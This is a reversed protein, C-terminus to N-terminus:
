KSYSAETTNKVPSNALRAAPEAPLTFCFTTGRGMESVAWIRGKHAEVIHRAIALGLGTGHHGKTNNNTGQYFHKFVNQLEERPIGPGSDSVRIEVEHRALDGKFFVDIRVESGEPSFKLANSLLNSLVQEIRREDATLMPTRIDINTRIRINRKRAILDVAEVCNEILDGVDCMTFDYDMMEAEMKSLDLISTISQFLRESHNGVVNLIERQNATLPGPIGELLLATGERIATLPTRLEHSVHATFDAKLRDLHELEEAMLKFAEALDEIERPGKIRIARNFEGRGVHRMEQALRSLPRSIGRAHLYSQILAGLIGFLTLWLMVEAASAAHDRALETKSLSAQERLRILENTREIVGETMRQKASESGPQGAITQEVEQVYLGHMIGIESALERERDNDIILAVRALTEKFDDRNKLYEDHFSSDRLLLYKEGNRVEALFSKILRKGENICAADTTLADMNLRSVLHLKGLGYVSVLLILAILTSQAFMVRSFITLRM